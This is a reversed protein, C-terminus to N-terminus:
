DSSITKRNIKYFSKDELIGARRPVRVRMGYANAGLVLTDVLEVLLAKQKKSKM